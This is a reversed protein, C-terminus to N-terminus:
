QDTEKKFLHAHRSYAANRVQTAMDLALNVLTSKHPDTLSIPDICSNSLMGALLGIADDGVGNIQSCVLRRSEIDRDFDALLEYIDRKM